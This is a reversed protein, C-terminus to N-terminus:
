IPANSPSIARNLYWKERLGPVSDGGVPSSRVMSAPVRASAMSLILAFSAAGTSDADTHNFKRTQTLTLPSCRPKADVRRRYTTLKERRRGAFIGMSAAAHTLNLRYCTARTEARILLTAWALRKPRFLGM